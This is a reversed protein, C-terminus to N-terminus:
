QLSQRSREALFRERDAPGEIEAAVRRYLEDASHCKSATRKVMIEAIPGIYAALERAIRNMTAADIVAARVVSVEEGQCVMPRLAKILVQLDSKWRTHTLEVANRYALDAIESPLQETRPM